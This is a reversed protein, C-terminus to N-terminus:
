LDSFIREMLDSACEAFFDRKSRLVPGWIHYAVVKDDNFIKEVFGYLDKCKSVERFHLPHFTKSEDAYIPLSLYEKLFSFLGPGTRIVRRSKDIMFKLAFYLSLSSKTAGIVGNGLVGPYLRENECVMFMDSYSEFSDRIQDNFMKGLCLVDNDIYVGGHKFLVVLRLVDSGFRPNRESMFQVTNPLDFKNDFIWYKYEWGNKNASLECLSLLDEHDNPVSLNLYVQHLVKPIQHRQDIDIDRMHESYMNGFTLPPYLINVDFKRAYHEQGYGRDFYRLINMPTDPEFGLINLPYIQFYNLIGGICLDISKWEKCNLILEKLKIVFDTTKSNLLIGAELSNYVIGHFKFPFGIYQYVRPDLGRILEFLNRVFVYTQSSILLIWRDRFREFAKTTEYINHVVIYEVGHKRARSEMFNNSHVSVFVLRESIDKNFNSIYPRDVYENFVKSKNFYRIGGYSYIPIGDIYYAVKEFNTGCSQKTINRISNDHYNLTYGEWVSYDVQRYLKTKIVVNV